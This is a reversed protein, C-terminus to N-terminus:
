EIPFGSENGAWKSILSILSLDKRVVPELTASTRPSLNERLRLIEAKATALEEQLRADAM